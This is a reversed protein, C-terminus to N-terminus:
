KAFVENNFDWSQPSYKEYMYFDTKTKEPIPYWGGLVDPMGQVYWDRWFVQFYQDNVWVPNLIGDEMAAFRAVNSDYGRNGVPMVSVKPLVGAFPRTLTVSEPTIEFTVKSNNWRSRQEYTRVEDTAEGAVRYIYNGLYTEM